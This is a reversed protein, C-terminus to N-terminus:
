KIFKSLERSRGVCYREAESLSGFYGGAVTCSGFHPSVMEARECLDICAKGLFNEFLDVVFFLHWNSKKEKGNLVRAFLSTGLVCRNSPGLSYFVPSINFIFGHVEEWVSM